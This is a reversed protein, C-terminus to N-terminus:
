TFFFLEPFTRIMRITIKLVRSGHEEKKNQGVSVPGDSQFVVFVFNDDGELAGDLRHRVAM